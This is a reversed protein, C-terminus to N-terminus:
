SAMIMQISCPQTLAIGSRTNSMFFKKSEIWFSVIFYKRLEWRTDDGLGLQGHEGYGGCICINNLSSPLLEMKCRHQHFIYINYPWRWRISEVGSGISRTTSLIAYSSSSTYKWMYIPIRRLVDTRVVVPNSNLISGNELMVTSIGGVVRGLRTGLYSEDFLFSDIWIVSVCVQTSRFRREPVLSM